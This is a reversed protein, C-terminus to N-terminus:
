MGQIPYIFHIISTYNILRDHAHLCGVRKQPQRITDGTTCVPGSVMRVNQGCFDLTLLKVWLGSGLQGKEQDTQGPNKKPPSSNVKLEAEADTQGKM